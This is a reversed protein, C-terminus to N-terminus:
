APNAVSPRSYDPIIDAQIPPLSFAASVNNAAKKKRRTDQCASTKQYHERSQM